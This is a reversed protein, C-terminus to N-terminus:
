FRECARANLNLHPEWVPSCSGITDKHLQFELIGLHDHLVLGVAGSSANEDGRSRCNVYNTGLLRTIVVGRLCKVKLIVRGSHCVQGQSWFRSLRGWLWRLTGAVNHRRNIKGNWFGGTLFEIQALMRQFTTIQIAPDSM